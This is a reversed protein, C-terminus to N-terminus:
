LLPLVTLRPGRKRVPLIILDATSTLTLTGQFEGITSVSSFLEGMFRISEGTPGISMTMPALSITVPNAAPQGTPSFLRFTVDARQDTNPNYLIMGTDTDEGLSDALVTASRQLGLVGYSTEFVVAGAADVSRIIVTARLALDSTVRAMGHAPSGGDESEFARMGGPPLSFLFQSDTVGQFTIFLPRQGDPHVFEIRGRVPTGSTNALVITTRRVGEPGRGISVWPLITQGPSLNLAIRYSGTQTAADGAVVTFTGTSSLSRDIRAEPQAPPATTRVLLRGTEDYLELSPTLGTGADRIMSIRVQDGARGRFTYSAVEGCFSVAAPLSDNVLLPEALGANNTRQLYFSYRGTRDLGDDSVTIAYSGSVALRQGTIRAVTRDCVQALTRGIPDRLELCPDLIGGPSCDVARATIVDGESATFMYTDTEGTASIDAIVNEGFPFSQVQSSLAPRLRHSERRDHGGVSNRNGSATAIILALIVSGMRILVTAPRQLRM